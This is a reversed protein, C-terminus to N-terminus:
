MKYAVEILSGSNLTVVMRLWLYNGQVDIVINDTM